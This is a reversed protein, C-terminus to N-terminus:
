NEQTPEHSLSRIEASHGRPPPHTSHAAIRRQAATTFQTDQDGTLRRELGDNLRRLLSLLTEADQETWDVLISAVLEQRRRILEQGLAMGEPTAVLQVARGDAPDPQRSVLGSKVLQSSHRSTTSPDHMTMEALEGQRLPGCKILTMLLGFAAWDLGPAWNSMHSRLMHMMRSQRGLEHGLEAFSTPLARGDVATSDASTM